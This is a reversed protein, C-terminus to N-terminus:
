LNNDCPKRKASSWLQLMNGQSGTVMTDHDIAALCDMSLQNKDGQLVLQSETELKWVRCTTDGGCTYLKNQYLADMGFVPYTHGYLTEM